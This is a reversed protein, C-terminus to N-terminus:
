FTASYSAVVLPNGGNAQVALTAPSPLPYATDQQYCGCCRSVNNTITSMRFAATSSDSVFALLYWGPVLLTDTIAIVQVGAAACAVGGNSVLKIGDMTYIGADVNGAQTTVTIGIDTVTVPKGTFIPQYKARNAVWVTATVSFGLAHMSLVDGLPTEGGPTLMGRGLGTSQLTAFDPM